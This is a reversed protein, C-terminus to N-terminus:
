KKSFKLLETSVRDNAAIIANPPHVSGLLKKLAQELQEPAEGIIFDDFIPTQHNEM